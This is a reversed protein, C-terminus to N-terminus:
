EIEPPTDSSVTPTTAPPQPQNPDEEKKKPARGRFPQLDFETLKEDTVGYHEKLAARMLAALRNGQASLKEVQRSAEQKAARMANQRNTVEQAQDLITGLKALFPELQPLEAKNAEVLGQLRQWGGIMEDFRTRGAMIRRGERAAAPENFDPAEM